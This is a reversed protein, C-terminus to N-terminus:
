EGHNAPHHATISAIADPDVWSGLEHRYTQTPRKSFDDKIMYGAAFIVSGGMLSSGAIALVIYVM